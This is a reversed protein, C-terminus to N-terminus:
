SRFMSAFLSYGILLGIPSGVTDTYVPPSFSANAELSCSESFM